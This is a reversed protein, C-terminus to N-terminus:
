PAQEKGTVGTGFWEELKRRAQEKVEPNIYATLTAIAVALAGLDDAYGVAPIIDPIADIPL